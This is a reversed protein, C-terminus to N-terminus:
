EASSLLLCLLSPQLKFRGLLVDYFSTPTMRDQVVIGEVRRRLLATHRCLVLVVVDQGFHTRGHHASHAMPFLEFSALTEIRRKRVASLFNRRLPRM